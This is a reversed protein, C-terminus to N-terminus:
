VGELTPLSWTEGLELDARRPRFPELGGGAYPTVEGLYVHGKELYFDVRLFDFGAAMLSAADLMEGLLKPRAVDDAVPVRDRFVLPRWDPSYFRSRHHVVRDVDVLIIHPKDDFVFVKYDTPSGSAPGLREEVIFGPAAQTYAWEGKALVRVDSNWGEIVQQLSGLDSLPSQGVFVLGSRDNPKLVWHRPLDVHSLESIDTGAWITAPVAIGLQAALAKMRVKDCTWSLMPRRDHLIRWNIKENFTRPRAFNGLRKHYYVFLLHRRVPLPLAAFARWTEGREAVRTKLARVHNLSARAQPSPAANTGPTPLEPIPQTAM